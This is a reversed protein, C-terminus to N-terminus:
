SLSSEPSPDAPHTKLWTAVALVRAAEVRQAIEAPNACTAAIAGPDVSTAADLLAHWRQETPYPKLNGTRGFHDAVCVELLHGFREPRRFADTARLVRVVTEPRLGDGRDLQHLRGHERIALIALERHETPVKLRACLAEGAAVGRAEHGAHGPLISAPTLGKGLDHLLAAFRVAPAYDREAAADLVLLTHVFADGEPHYDARQPM